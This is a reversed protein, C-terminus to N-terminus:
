KRVLATNIVNLGETIELSKVDFRSLFREYLWECNLHNIHFERQMSLCFAHCDTVVSEFYANIVEPDQESLSHTAIGVYAQQPILRESSGLNRADVLVIKAYDEASLETRLYESILRLTMPLDIIYYAGVSISSLNFIQRALGGYGGGIEVFNVDKGVPALDEIQKLFFYHIIDMHWVRGDSVHADVRSSEQLWNMDRKIQEEAFGMQVLRQFHETDFLRVRSGPTLFHFEPDERFKALDIPTEADMLSNFNGDSADSLFPTVVELPWTLSLGETVCAQAADLLSETKAIRRGALYLSLDSISLSSRLTDVLPEGLHSGCMEVTEATRWGRVLRMSTRGNAKSCRVLRRLIVQNM